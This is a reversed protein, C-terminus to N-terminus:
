SLRKNKVNSSKEQGRESEHTVKIGWQEVVTPHFGQPMTPYFRAAMEILEDYRTVDNYRYVDDGVIEEVGTCTEYADDCAAMYQYDVVKQERDLRRHLAEVRATLCKQDLETRTDALAAAYNGPGYITQYLEEAALRIVRWRSASRQEQRQAVDHLVALVEDVDWEDNKKRAGLPRGRPRKRHNAKPTM